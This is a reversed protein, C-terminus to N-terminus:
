IKVADLNKNEINLSALVSQYEKLNNRLKEQMPGLLNVCSERELEVVVCKGKAKVTSARPTQAILAIEGFYGGESYSKVLKGQCYAEAKGEMIMFLSTGTDGEVIIDEDVFTKETLADALRCRDYPDLKSLLAVSHLLSDYKERKKIVANRVIHNFTSRDLSWLKMDTDAIVSCARPANYMLALEGFCGGEGITGLDHVEGTAASTKTFHATGSEILYLKDGLDGQQIIKTGASVDSSDFAKVLVDVHKADVSSFLFCKLITEKIRAAQEPSKEHVPAVFADPNNYAGFVEASVSVRNRARAFRIAESIAPDVEDSAM